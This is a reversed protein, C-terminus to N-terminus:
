VEVNPHIQIEGDLPHLLTCFHVLILFDLSTQVWCACPSLVCHWEYSIISSNFRIQLIHKVFCWRLPTSFACDRNYEKVRGQNTLLLLVCRPWTRGSDSLDDALHLLVCMTCTHHIYQVNTSLQLVHITIWHKKENQHLIGKAARMKIQLVVETEMISPNGICWIRNAGISKYEMGNQETFKSKVRNWLARKFTSSTQPPPSVAGLRSEQVSSTM